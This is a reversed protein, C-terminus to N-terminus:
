PGLPVTVQNTADTNPQEGVGRVYGVVKVDVPGASNGAGTFLVTFTATASQGAAVPEIGSTGGAAPRPTAASRPRCTTQEAGLVMPAHSPFTVVYYDSKQTGGNHVTVALSTLTGPAVTPTVTLNLTTPPIAPVDVPPGSLAFARGDWRYVRWRNTAASAPQDARVTVRM